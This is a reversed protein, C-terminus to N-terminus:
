TTKEKANQAAYEARYKRLQEEYYILSPPDTDHNVQFQHGKYDSDPLLEDMVKLANELAMKILLIRSPNHTDDQKAELEKILLQVGYLYDYINHLRFYFDSFTVPDNDFNIFIARTNMEKTVRREAAAQRKDDIM